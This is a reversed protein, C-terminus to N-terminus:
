RQERIFLEVRRNQQRGAATDNSAVPATEGRGEVIMASSSLGSAVLHDRVASARDMSLQQNYSDSGVSDTHGIITITFSAGSERLNSAIRSLSERAGPKLVSKGTDFYIGPLTVVLGAEDRRTQAIEALRAELEALRQRREEEARQAANLQDQAAQARRDAEAAAREAALRAQEAEATAERAQREAAERRRREEAATRESAERGLRAAQLELQPLRESAADAALAAELRRARMEVLYALHAAGDAQEPKRAMSEATDLMSVAEAFQQPEAERAGARLAAELRAQAAEVRESATAGRNGIAVEVQSLPLGAPDGGLRDVDAYLRNFENVQAAARAIEEAARAAEMAEVARRQADARLTANSSNANLRASDLRERAERLIEPALVNAGAQEASAIQAEAREVERVAGGTAVPSSSSCAVVLLAFLAALPRISSM